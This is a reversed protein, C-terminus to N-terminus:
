QDQRLPRKKEPPWPEVVIPTPLGTVCNAQLECPFGPPPTPTPLVEPEIESFRSRRGVLGKKGPCNSWFGVANLHEATAYYTIILCTGAAQAPAHWALSSLGLVAAAVLHKPATAQM